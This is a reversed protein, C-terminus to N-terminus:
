VRVIERSYESITAAHFKETVLTDYIHAAQIDGELMTMGRDDLHNKADALKSLLPITSHNKIETLLDKSEERFGLMRAYYIYDDAKFQDMRDKRINLLIHLLSRSVRAYTIDKSKLLDCFQSFSSYRNLNKLIKDSFDSSIDVYSTYGTSADLLLKYKLMASIDQEFIPFTENFEEKMIDFVYYPVQPRIKDLEGTEYVSERIAMASSLTSQVMRDHYGSGIRLNTFPEISSGRQKIARLYEFGLINNPESMAQVHEFSDPIMEKITQARAIPYSLGTKMKERIVDHLEEKRDNLIDAIDNLLGIDGCESGFCLSDVIGLKDLLAISGSAFFEASGVSYYLPLELVLDAGGKLAMETRKYKDLFAPLGRQTFDGSMVVVVKDAGTIERAQKIQNEHGNHFPNYEAVIGCVKM